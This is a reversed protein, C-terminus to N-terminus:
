VDELKNTVSEPFLETAGCHAGSWGAHVCGEVKGYMLKGHWSGELGAKGDVFAVYIIANANPGAGVGSPESELLPNVGESPETPGEV